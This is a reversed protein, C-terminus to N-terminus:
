MLNHPAVTFLPILWDKQSHMRKDCQLVNEEYVKSENRINTGIKSVVFFLVEVNDLYFSYSELKLYKTLRNVMRRVTM